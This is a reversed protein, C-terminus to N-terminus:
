TLKTVNEHLFFSSFILLTISSCLRMLMPTIENLHNVTVAMKIKSGRKWALKVVYDHQSGPLITYQDPLQPVYDGGNQFLKM